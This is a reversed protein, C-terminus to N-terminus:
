KKAVIIKPKDEAVSAEVKLQLKGDENVEKILDVYAISEGMIDKLDARMLVNNPLNNPHWVMAEAVRNDLNDIMTDVATSFAKRMSTIYKKVEKTCDEKNKQEKPIKM